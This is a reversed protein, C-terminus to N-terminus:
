EASAKVEVGRLEVDDFMGVDDFSGLGIEGSAFTKDHASMVPTDMDDFYVEILGNEVERVIKVQHWTDDKWPTGDTTKESVKIRPADDVIFIQNAHDDTKQGLHVYYFHAPNQYGFFLCLDRHGYSEKTTRLKATLVFDGVTPAELLAINFPSRHPPEYKSKGFLELVPNAPDGVQGARWAAPDTMKWASIGDSFDDKLLVPLEDAARASNAVAVAFPFCLLCTFFKM